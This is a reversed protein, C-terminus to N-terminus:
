NQICQFYVLWYKGWQGRLSLNPLEVVMCKYDLFKSTCGHVTTNDTCQLISGLINKGLDNIDYIFLNRGLPSSSLIGANIKHVESSQGNVFMNMSTDSLFSKISSIVIGPIELSALNYLLWVHWMKDFAKSNEVAIVSSIIKNDITEFIRNM